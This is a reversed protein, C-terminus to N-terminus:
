TESIDNGRTVQIVQVTEAQNGGRKSDFSNV